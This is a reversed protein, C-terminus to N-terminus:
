WQRVYCFPRVRAPRRGAARDERGLHRRHPYLRLCPSPAVIINGYPRVHLRRRHRKSRYMPPSLPYNQRQRQGAGMQRRAMTASESREQRMELGLCRPHQRRPLKIASPYWRGRGMPQKSEWRGEGDFPNFICAQDIRDGDTWHGGVVLLKGDPSSPTGRAFSIYMTARPIERHMRPPRLQNKKPTRLPNRTTQEDTCPATDM